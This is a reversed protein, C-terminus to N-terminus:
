RTTRPDRPPTRFGLCGGGFGNCPPAAAQSERCQVCGSGIGVRASPIPGIVAFPFFIDKM